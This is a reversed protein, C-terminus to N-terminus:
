GGIMDKLGNFLKMDKEIIMAESSATEEGPRTVKVEIVTGESIGEKGFQDLLFFFFEPHNEYLAKRENVVKMVTMPSIM